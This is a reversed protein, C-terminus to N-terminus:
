AVKKKKLIIHFLINHSVYSPSPTTLLHIWIYVSFNFMLSDSLLYFECLSLELSGLLTIAPLLMRDVVSRSFM